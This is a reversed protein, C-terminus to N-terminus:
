EHIKNEGWNRAQTCCLQQSCTEFYIFLYSKRNTYKHTSNSLNIIFTSIKIKLLQIDRALLEASFVESKIKRNLKTWSGSNTRNVVLGVRWNHFCFCLSLFILKILTYFFVICLFKISCSVETVDSGTLRLPQQCCDAMWWKSMMFFFYFLCFDYFIMIYMELFDLNPENIYMRVIVTNVIFNICIVSKRATEEYHFM